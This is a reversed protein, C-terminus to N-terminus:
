NGTQEFCDQFGARSQGFSESFNWCETRFNQSQVAHDNGAGFVEDMQIAILCSNFQTPSFGRGRSTQRFGNTKTGM